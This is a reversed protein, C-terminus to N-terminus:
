ANQQEDMNTLLGVNYKFHKATINAMVKVQQQVASLLCKSARM